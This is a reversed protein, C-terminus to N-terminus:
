LCIHVELEHNCINKWYLYILSGYLHRYKHSFYKFAVLKRIFWFLNISTLQQLITNFSLVM